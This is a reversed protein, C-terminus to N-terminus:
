VLILGLVNICTDYTSVHILTICTYILDSVYIYLHILGSVHIYMKVYVQHESPFDEDAFDNIISLVPLLYAFSPGM